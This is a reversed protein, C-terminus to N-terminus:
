IFPCRKWAFVSYKCYNHEYATVSSYVAPKVKVIDNACVKAGFLHLIILVLLASTPPFLAIFDYLKCFVDVHKLLNCM